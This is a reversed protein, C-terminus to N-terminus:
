DPNSDWSSDPDMAQYEMAEEIKFSNAFDLIGQPTWNEM